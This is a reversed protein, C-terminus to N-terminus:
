RRPAQASKALERASEIFLSAAPTVARQTLTVIGSPIRPLPLAVPLVRLESRRTPFRLASTPYITLFRGTTLLSVRVEPPTTVVAVRPYDLGCSRFATAVATGFGSEPPPLVWPEDMLELVSIRRRRALPNQAGAVVVFSEDFLCEFSMREDAIQSWRRTILFDVNRAILEHQLKVAEEILLRFIIRPYRRALRDIVASVVSVALFPHCGIRVEGATPDALFEIRQVGQRLNDLVTAGCDLLVRGYETPEVGKRSRDLLRVGLVHELEAIAKSVAPQSINLQLAARAMSRSQVVTELLRLDRLKLRYAVRDILEM